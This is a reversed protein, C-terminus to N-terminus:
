AGWIMQMANIIMSVFLLAAMILLQKRQRSIVKTSHQQTYQYKLTAKQKTTLKRRGKNMPMM